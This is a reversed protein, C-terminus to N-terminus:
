DLIFEAEKQIADEFEEKSLTSTDIIVDFKDDNVDDLDIESIHNKCNLHKEADEGYEQKVRAIQDEESVKLRIIRFGKKKLFELENKFRVDSIIVHTLSHLTNLHNEVETIFVREDDSRMEDAVSQLMKRNKTKMQREVVCVHKLLDAFAIEKLEMKKFRDRIENPVLEDEGIEEIAGAICEGIISTATSKGSAMKGSIAIRKMNAM